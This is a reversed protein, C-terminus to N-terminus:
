LQEIDTEQQSSVFGKRNQHSISNSGAKNHTSTNKSVGTSAQNIFTNSDAYGSKLIDSDANLSTTPPSSKSAMNENVNVSKQGMANFSQGYKTNSFSNTMIDTPILDSELM